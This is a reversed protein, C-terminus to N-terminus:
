RATRMPQSSKREVTELFTAVARIIGHWNKSATADAIAVAANRIEDDRTRDEELRQRIYCAADLLEQYLDVLPDRGNLTQLPTGYKAEGMRSREQLDAIVLPVIETRGPRPPQQPSAADISM